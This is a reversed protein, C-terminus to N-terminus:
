NVQHVVHDSQFSSSWATSHFDNMLHNVILRPDASVSQSTGEDADVSIPGAWGINRIGVNITFGGSDQNHWSKEVRELSKSFKKEVIEKKTSEIMSVEFRDQILKACRKIMTTSSGVAPTGGAGVIGGYAV